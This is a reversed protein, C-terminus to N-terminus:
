SGTTRKPQNVTEWTSCHYRENATPASPLPFTVDFADNANYLLGRKLVKRSRANTWSIM